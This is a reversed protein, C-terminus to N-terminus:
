SGKDPRAPCLSMWNPPLETPSLGIAEAFALLEEAQCNISPARRGSAVDEAERQLFTLLASCIEQRLAAVALGERQCFKELRRWNTAARALGRYLSRDRNGPELDRNIIERYRALAMGKLAGIEAETLVLAPGDAARTLYYLSGHLAVEPIEGSHRVILLEDALHLNDFEAQPM